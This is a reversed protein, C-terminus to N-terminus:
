VRKHQRGCSAVLSVIIVHHFAEFYIKNLLNVLRWSTRTCTQISPAKSTCSKVTANMM